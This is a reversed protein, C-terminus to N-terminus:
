EQLFMFGFRGNCQRSKRESFTADDEVVTINAASHAVLIIETEFVNILSRHGYCIDIWLLAFLLKAMIPSSLHVPLVRVTSTPSDAKSLSTLSPTTASLVPWMGTDMQSLSISSSLGYLNAFQHLYVM